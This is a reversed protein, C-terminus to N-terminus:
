PLPAGCHHCYRANPLAQTGCQPCYRVRAKTPKARPQPKPMGRRREWLAFGLGLGVLMVGIGTLVWPLWTPWRASMPTGSSPPAVPTLPAANPAVQQMHEVTLVDDPKTYRVTLTFTQGAEIPGFDRGYVPLGMPGAGQSELSPEFIPTSANWPPLFEVVFHDTSLDGPWIFTYAREDGQKQLNDYYEVQVYPQQTQLTVEAWEAETPTYDYAANVLTDQPSAATAVAFPRGVRKPIRVTLTVPFATDAPLTIRYIVLMAPKDYEPWLSVTIDMARVAAQRAKAALLLLALMPLIAMWRRVPM